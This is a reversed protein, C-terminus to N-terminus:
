QSNYQLGFIKSKFLLCHFINGQSATSVTLLGAQPLACGKVCVSNIDPKGNTDRNNTYCKPHTKLVM